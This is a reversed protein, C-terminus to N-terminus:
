WGSGNPMGTGMYGMRFVRLEKVDGEVVAVVVPAEEDENRVLM